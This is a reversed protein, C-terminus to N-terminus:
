QIPVRRVLRVPRELDKDTIFQWGIEFDMTVAFHASFQTSSWRVGTLGSSPNAKAYALLLSQEVYSPIYDGTERNVKLAVPSEAAIMAETNALGDDFSDAGEIKKGYEGWAGILEHETGASILVYHQGDQLYLGTVFGGGYPQGIVLSTEAKQVASM